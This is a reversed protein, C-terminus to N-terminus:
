VAASERDFIPEKVGFLCSSRACLRAFSHRAAFFALLCSSLFFVASCHSLSARRLCMLSRLVASPWAVYRQLVLLALARKLFSPNVEPQCAMALGKTYGEVMREDGVGCFLIEFKSNKSADKEMRKTNSSGVIMSSTAILTELQEEETTEQARIEGSEGQRDGIAM